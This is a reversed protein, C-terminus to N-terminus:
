KLLLHYFEILYKSSSFSTKVVLLPCIAPNERNLPLHPHPDGWLSFIQKNVRVQFFGGKTYGWGWWVVRMNYGLLLKIRLQLWREQVMKIKVEYEKYVFTLSIKIKISIWYKCFTTKLKSFPQFPWFWVEEPEWRGIFFNGRAFHRIRGM